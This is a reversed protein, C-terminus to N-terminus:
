WLRAGHAAYPLAPAAYPLPAAIKLAPASYALPAAIKTVIPAVAKVAVAAPEKHVVANFGNHADATYEVIRRSGDSEVLSYSGISLFHNLFKKLIIM